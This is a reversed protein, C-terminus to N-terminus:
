GGNFGMFDWLIGNFDWSFGVMFFRHIGQAGNTGWGPTSSGRLKWTLVDNTLWKTPHIGSAPLRSFFGPAMDRPKGRFVFFFWPISLYFDVTYGM